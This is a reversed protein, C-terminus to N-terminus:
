GRSVKTFSYKGFDATIQEGCCVFVFLLACVLRTKADRNDMTLRLPERCYVM